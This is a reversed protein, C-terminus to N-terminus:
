GRRSREGGTDVAVTHRVVALVHGAVVVALLRKVPLIDLHLSVPGTRTPDDLGAPAGIRGAVAVSWRRGAEAWSDAMERRSALRLQIM